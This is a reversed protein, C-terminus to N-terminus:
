TAHPFLYITVAGFHLASGALVFCHWLAHNFPLRRWSYFAVGLTYALGGALLLSIGGWGLVEAFRGIWLMGVWGMALYLLVSYRRFLQLATLRLTIGFAALLWIMVFLPIGLSPEVGLLTFPTYTGAILLFIACHDLAEFLRKWDVHWSGHYLTSALYCVVLSSGYVWAAVLSWTQGDLRAVLVLIVLGALSLLLGFGHTTANAIEEWLSQPFDEDQISHPATM